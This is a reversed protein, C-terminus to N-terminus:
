EDLMTAQNVNDPADVNFALQGGRRLGFSYEKTRHPPVVSKAHIQAKVETCDGGPELIPTLCVELTVKRAKADAPRDYCDLAARGLQMMFAEYAKGGDLEKLTDLTFQVIM